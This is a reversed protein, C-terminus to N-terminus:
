KAEQGGQKEQPRTERGAKDDAADKADGEAMSRLKELVDATIGHEQFWDAFAKRTSRDPIQKLLRAVEEQSAPSPVVKPGARPADKGARNFAAQYPYDEGVVQRPQGRAPPIIWEAGAVAEPGRQWAVSLERYDEALSGPDHPPMHRNPDWGSGSFLDITVMGVRHCEFCANGQIHITRMDWNEGGIVFYPSDADLAPVVSEDTGPIKAANIFSNTIFPDSQHCQV